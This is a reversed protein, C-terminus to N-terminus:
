GLLRIAYEPYICKWGYLVDLRYFRKFQTPVACETVTISLGDSSETYMDVGAGLNPLPRMALAFANKNFALNARHSGVFTVAAGDAPAASVNQYAGTARIAPSVTVAMDTAQAVGATVTFQQLAGTTQKSLPNVAYVGAITFVDGEVLAGSSIGDVHVTSTIATDETIYTVGSVTDILPTGVLTNHTHYQINQDTMIDFGAVRGLYGNRLMDSAGKPEFTGKLADALAWSADDDMVMKRDMSPICMKGAKAGVAGLAAFSNPTVGATGACAYVQKYLGAGDFDIQNALEIVAPKLFRETIEAPNVKLAMDSYSLSFSVNKLKDITISTNLEVVNQIRASVDAGEGVEYKVPKRINVTDGVNVFEKEYDRHVNSGFVLTNKLIPLAEKALIQSTSITNAM